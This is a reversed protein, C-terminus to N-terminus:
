VMNVYLHCVHTSLYLYSRSRPVWAMCQCHYQFCGKYDESSALCYSQFRRDKDRRWRAEALRTSANVDRSPMSQTWPIGLTLFQYRSDMSFAWYRSFLPKQRSLDTILDTISTSRVSLLNTFHTPPEAQPRM